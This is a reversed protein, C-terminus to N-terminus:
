SVFYVVVRLAFAGGIVAVTITFWGMARSRVFGTLALAVFLLLVGSLFALTLGRHLPLFTSWQTAARAENQAAQSSWLTWGLASVSFAVTAVASCRVIWDVTRGSISVLLVGLFTLAFGGFVASISALSAYSDSM